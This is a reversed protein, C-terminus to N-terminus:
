RMVLAMLAKQAHLRNEAQDWVASRPGHVIEESIEEGYHAPLCHMVIAEPGAIELIHEDIRYQELAALRLDREAKCRSDKEVGVHRRAAEKAREVVQRHHRAPDDDRQEEAKQEERVAAQHVPNEVVAQM